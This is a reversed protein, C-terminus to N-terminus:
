LMNSYFSSVAHKYDYCGDIYQILSKRDKKTMANFLDKCQSFNGNFWSNICYDFYEIETKFELQKALTLLKM